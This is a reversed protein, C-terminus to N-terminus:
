LVTLLIESLVEALDQLTLQVEEVSAPTSDTTSETTAAPPPPPPDNRGPGQMDGGLALTSSSLALITGFLICRLQKM